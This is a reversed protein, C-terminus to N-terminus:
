KGPKGAGGAATPAPRSVIVHAPRVVRGHLTFGPRLVQVVTREAAPSDVELVAQHFAPDFPKGAADIRAVGHGALGDLLQREVAHLGEAVRKEHETDKLGEIAGHLADAVGLIDEVVPQAAYKVREDAQRQIRRTENIFDAQQRRVRDELAAVQEKLAAITQEDGPASAEAPTAAPKDDTAGPVPPVGGATPSPGPAGGKGKSTEDPRQENTNM